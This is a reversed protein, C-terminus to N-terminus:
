NIINGIFSKYNATFVSVSLWLLDLSLLVKNQSLYCFSLSLLLKRPWNYDLNSLSHFIHKDRLTNQYLISKRCNTLYNMVSMLRSYITILDVKIIFIYHIPFVCSLCWKFLIWIFESFVIHILSLIYVFLLFINKVFHCLQETCM